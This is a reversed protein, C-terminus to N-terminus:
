GHHRRAERFHDACGKGCFYYRRTGIAVVAGATRPSVRMGCISDRVVPAFDRMTRRVASAFPKDAYQELLVSRVADSAVTFNRHALRYVIEKGDRQARVVRARRLVQLHQSVNAQPLGLMGQLESVTFAGDRLLNVIELRKANALAKLVAAHRQFVQTYM